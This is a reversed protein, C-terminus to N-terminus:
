GVRYVSCQSTNRWNYEQWLSNSNSGPDFMVITTGNISDIAVWHQGTNGKVECALYGGTDLEHKISNFKQQQSMGMLEIKGQWKFSPAAGTASAWLFNGGSAFGGHSYLITVNPSAPQFSM